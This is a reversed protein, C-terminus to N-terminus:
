RESTLPLLFDADRSGNVWQSFARLDTASHWDEKSTINIRTKTFNNEAGHDKHFEVTVTRLPLPRLLFIGYAYREALEREALSLRPTDQIHGIRELYQDRSDSDITFGKHDYRGTGATLVPIGFSAAEIGITGRVTLCYDMLAFLSFTSIDSEAPILFIHSPLKGIHNRLATVEAPEGKFGEKLSKGVNAPHIKIVWNVKDNACAARVIEIFWQEYDDFLSEGWSLPADWVIHPFIFANKKAPDLGLQRQAEEACVFRKDFQTGSESYWDGNAYNRYLEQQLERRCSHTWEIRGISELSEDSLSVPNQERSELTYRKLLLSNSKHAPHWRITDVRNLLCNDFLEGKRTYVVDHFLACVPRIKRLLQQSATAYAMSKALQSAFFQRLQPSELDLSGLRFHRLTTSVAIKGVRAGAFEFTLLEQASHFPEILAKAHASFDISGLFDSWLYVEKVGALRYYPEFLKQDHLLLVVPSFGSLELAKIFALEVELWPQPLATVLAKREYHSSVHVKQKLLHGYQRRFTFFRYRKSLEFRLWRVAGLLGVTRLIVRLWISPFKSRLHLLQSSGSHGLLWDCIVKTV